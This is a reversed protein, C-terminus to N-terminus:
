HAPPLEEPWRQDAVNRRWEAVPRSAGATVATEDVVPFDAGGVLQHTGRGRETRAALVYTTGTELLPEGAVRWTEDGLTGGLQTVRLTRVPRGKLTQRVRVDFVTYPTGGHREQVEAVREVTGVVVYDAFGAVKADDHVDFAYSSHVVHIGGAGASRWTGGLTAWGGVALAGAVLGVVLAKVLRRPM